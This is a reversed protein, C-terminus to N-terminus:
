QEIQANDCYRQMFEKINFAKEDQIDEEPDPNKIVLREYLEEVGGRVYDNFLNQYLLFQEENEAGRLALNVCKDATMSESYETMLIMQMIFDLKEKEKSIQEPFVRKPEYTSNDAPAKREIRCGIIPALIYIDILRKFYSHEIDDKVWLEGAMRAHKGTFEFEKKFFEYSM